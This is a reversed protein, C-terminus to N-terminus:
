QQLPSEHSQHSQAPRGAISDAPVIPLLPVGYSRLIGTIAAHDRVLLSDLRAAFATDAHRVGLSIDYAFPQGSADVAQALPVVTLPARERPAFYGAFPGWVIAVDISGHAVSHIIAAAPDRASYDGFIPFGTVNDIIGRAALAEAPPTNQYDDGIVHIGIRLRPLVSDDMTRVAYASRTRYVFAYTSRFYPQTTRVLDYGHPVGMIVDCLGANLTKRVFGRGQPLWTYEVPLQLDRALREAIRNEFGSGNSSSFPMNNPDACVRFARPTVHAAGPARASSALLLGAMPVIMLAEFVAARM